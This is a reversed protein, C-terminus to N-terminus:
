PRGEVELERTPAAWLPPEAEHEPATGPAALPGLRWVRPWIAVVALVVVITGVGGLVVAPVAGLLRAALGSEFGGLENSMSIFISNVASVRGRMSDPTLVQVLTSRVVVSINDLAGTLFLMALSLWFSRSVGFVITAVGFGIVAVVLAPGARKFPPRHALTLAMCAAGIAPAARLWGLGGPGVRLVEKAFVPLLATAGGLLVAFMDLTITALILETRRVFRVGALLSDLTVPGTSEVRTGGRVTAVCGFALLSGLADLLYVPAARGFAGLAMGGLAPGAVAAVQWGSSRWAVANAFDAKPVLQPLIAWRAPLSFATASGVMVLCAYVMWVPGRAASVAALGLSAVVQALQTLMVVSKRPYRDSVQGAVLALALVPVVQALGVFGLDLASRTRDYLEWGVAVTQLESAITGIMSAGLFWRFDRHRLAAYPDAAPDNEKM